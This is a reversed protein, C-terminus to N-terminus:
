APPGPPCRAEVDSIMAGGFAAEEDSLGPSVEAPTAVQRAAFHARFPSAGPAVLHTSAPSNVYKQQSADHNKNRQMFVALM